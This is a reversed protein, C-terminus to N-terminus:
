DVPGFVWLEPRGVQDPWARNLLNFGAWSSFSAYKAAQWAGKVERQSSFMQERAKRSPTPTWSEWPLKADGQDEQLRHTWEISARLDDPDMKKFYTWRDLEFVGRRSLKALLLQNLAALLSFIGIVGLLGPFQHLPAPSLFLALGFCLLNSGFGLLVGRGHSGTNVAGHRRAVLLRNAGDPFRERWYRPYVISEKGPLGYIGGTFSRDQHEVVFLLRGQNNEMEHRAWTLGIHLYFQFGVLLMMSLFFWGISGIWGLWASMAVMMGLNLWLFIGQITAAKSWSILWEKVEQQQRAFRRPLWYGALFDVPLGFLLFMGVLGGILAMSSTQPWESSPHFSLYVMAASLLLWAVVGLMSVRLRSKLYNMLSLGGIQDPILLSSLGM